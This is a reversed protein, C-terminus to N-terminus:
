PERRLSEMMADVVIKLEAKEEEPQSSDKVIGILGTPYGNYIFSYGYAYAEYAPSRGATVTGEFNYAETGNVVVNEGEIEIFGEIHHYADLNQMFRDFTMEHASQIDTGQEMFLCTFAVYKTEGDLFTESYGREIEKYAPVDIYIDELPVRYTSVLLESTGAAETEQETPHQTAAGTPSPVANGGNEATEQASCACLLLLCSALILAFFRRM